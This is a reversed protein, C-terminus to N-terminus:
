FLWLINTKKNIKRTCSVFKINKPLRYNFVLKRKSGDKGTQLAQCSSPPQKIWLCPFKKKIKFQVIEICVTTFYIQFSMLVFKWSYALKNAGDKKSEQVM